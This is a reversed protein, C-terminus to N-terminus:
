HLCVHIMVIKGFCVFVWVDNAIVREVGHVFAANQIAVYSLISVQVEVVLSEMFLSLIKQLFAVFDVLLFAQVFGPCRFVPLGGNCPLCADKVIETSQKASANVLLGVFLQFFCHSDDFTNVRLCEGFIFVSVRYM